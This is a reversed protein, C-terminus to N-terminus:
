INSFVYSCVMHRNSQKKKVYSPYHKRNNIFCIHINNTNDLKKIKSCHYDNNKLAFWDYMFKSNQQPHCLTSIDFHSPTRCFILPQLILVSITAMTCMNGFCGDIYEVEIM